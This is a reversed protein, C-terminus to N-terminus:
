ILIAYNKIIIKNSCNSKFSLMEIFDIPRSKKIAKSGHIERAGTYELIYEFYGM